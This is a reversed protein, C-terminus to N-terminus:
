WQGEDHSKPTMEHLEDLVPKQIQICNGSKQKHSPFPQCWAKTSSLNFDHTRTVWLYDPGANKPIPGKGVTLNASQFIFEHHVERGGTVCSQPQTCWMFSPLNTEYLTRLMQPPHTLQEEYHWSWHRKFKKFRSKLLSHDKINRKMHRALLPELWHRLCKKKLCM